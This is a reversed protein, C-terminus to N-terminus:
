DAFIYSRAWKLAMNYRRQARWTLIAALIAQIPSLLLWWTGIALLKLFFGGGNDSWLTAATHWLVIPSHGYMMWVFIYPIWIIAIGIALAFWRKKVQIRLGFHEGDTAAMVYKLGFLQILPLVFLWDTPNAHNMM